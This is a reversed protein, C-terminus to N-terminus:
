LRPITGVELKMGPRLSAMAYRLVGVLEAVSVKRGKMVVERDVMALYETLLWTVAGERLGKFRGAKSSEEHSMEDSSYDGSQKRLSRMGGTEKSSSDDIIEM